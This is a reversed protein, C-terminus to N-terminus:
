ILMGLQGHQTVVVSPSLTSEPVLEAESGLELSKGLILQTIEGNDSRYLLERRDGYRNSYCRVPHGKLSAWTGEEIPHRDILRHFSRDIWAEAEALTLPYTTPLGMEFSVREACVWRKGRASVIVGLHNGREREGSAIAQEDHNVEYTVGRYLSVPVLRYATICSPNSRGYGAYLTSFSTYLSGCYYATKVTVFPETSGAVQSCSNIDAMPYWEQAPLSFTRSSEYMM